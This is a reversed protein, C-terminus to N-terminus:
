SYLDIHKKPGGQLHDKDAEEKHVKEAEKAKQVQTLRKDRKTESVEGNIQSANAALHQADDAVKSAKHSQVLVVQLNHIKTM